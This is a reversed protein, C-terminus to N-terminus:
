PLVITAEIEALRGTCMDKVFNAVAAIVVPNNTFFVNSNDDAIKLGCGQFHNGGLEDGEKQIDLEFQELNDITHILKNRQRMRSQLNELLELTSELDLSPNQKVQDRVEAKTQAVDAPAKTQEANPKVTKTNPTKAEVSNSKEIAKQDTKM